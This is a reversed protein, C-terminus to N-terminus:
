NDLDTKKFTQALKKAGIVKSQENADGYTDLTMARSSHGMMLSLSAIDMNSRIGVTAFNHRLGHLTIIKGYADKLDYAVAFRHFEKGLRAPTMYDTMEGIVFWNADPKEKDYRYKLVEVLQPVIPFTRKSSNNKPVKTYTPGGSDGIASSVTLIGRDFDIDNWRLGCIESRRCAAYYAILFGTLFADGLDYEQYVASLFTNMQNDTLHTVRNVKSKSLGKVQKFPNKSIEGIDHYYNYVKAIITYTYYISHQSLGKNSLETHWKVIATRDLTNFIYDGLYPKINRNYTQTQYYYTSQELAGISYQYDIYGLVVDNITRQPMPNQEAVENLERRLDEAMRSAERKGKAEKLVKDLTKWKGQDKYRLRAQWTGNKLQRVSATTYKEM